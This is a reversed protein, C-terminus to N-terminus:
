VEAEAGEFVETARPDGQEVGEASGGGTAEVSEPCTEAAMMAGEATAAAGTGECASVVQSCVLRDVFLVV